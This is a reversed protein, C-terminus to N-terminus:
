QKRWIKSEFIIPLYDDRTKLGCLEVIDMENGNGNIYFEYAIATMYRVVNATKANELTFKGKM